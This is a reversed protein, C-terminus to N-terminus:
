WVKFYLTMKAPNHVIWPNDFLANKVREIGMIDVSSAATAESISMPMDSRKIVSVVDFVMRMIQPHTFGDSREVGHVMWVTVHAIWGGSHCPHIRAM